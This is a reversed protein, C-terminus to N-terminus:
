WAGGDMPNELCSYQLPTGNGEGVSCVLLGWIQGIVWPAKKFIAAVFFFFILIKIGVTQPISSSPVYMKESPSQHDQHAALPPFWPGAVFLARVTM